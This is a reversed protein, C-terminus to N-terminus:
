ELKKIFKCKPYRNCALFAGYVSKRIVLKGKKCKPCPQGEEKSTAKKGPCEPNICVEQPKKGKRIIQIVPYGCEACKKNLPKILGTAPLKFTTKCEPYNSCAIFRGYKGKRIVLNGKKCKMCPGVTTLEARTEVFTKRLGDGIQKEKTKFEKLIEKLVERAEELVQEEKIKGERIQELYEEFHRTLAVDIIKPSYKELIDIIHMGLTTATIPNRTLYNRTILTDIIDARTAKTGLGHKEMAKILSAQTYRKPPKTEDEHLTIKKITIEEKEKVKPLETEELKVYPQYFEHWGKKITITGKAKFNEQKTTITITQTEREAPEAFTALFRKVILDYIKAKKDEPKKPTIGTPYIAPHAPDTKKGNNPKLIKKKLLKNTLPKLKTQKSLATLIKKFGIKEPLQQSSTRPYSIAGETYLDQATSLTQKPSIGFCRFAETQLSTLDFPTPPKQEFKKREIKTIAAKKEKKIKDYIKQAEKKEWFKDKEHWAEIKGEKTQGKLEIQWYKKPKFNAIEREKDVVLKLTPGQVRGTSLIKFMGATKIASTLARSLNIGYYYDLHHRTDGAEAQGWDLHEAATKYANILDPKTLTSFKMRKADNRNCIYRVINLGIVEGEIDYDTAVTIKDAEKALKRLTEYYKKTFTASKSIKFAPEWEIDFVPYKFGKTKEKEALGFLHGVAAGIIINKKNHKIRYYTVGKYKETKPKGEALSEAIRKSANPKEAIILETM